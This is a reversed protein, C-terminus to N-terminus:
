DYLFVFFFETDTTIKYNLQGWQNFFILFIKISCIGPNWGHFDIQKREHFITAEKSQVLSAGCIKHSHLPLVFDFPYSFFESNIAFGSLLCWGIQLKKIFKASICIYVTFIGARGSFGLWFPQRSSRMRGNKGIRHGHCQESSFGLWLVFPIRTLGCPPLVTM